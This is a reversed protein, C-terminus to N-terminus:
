AHKEEGSSRNTIPTTCPAQTPVSTQRCAACLGWYTVEAEDVLYGADDSPRSAPRTAPPASSTSSRGCARCVLHHHNDGTDVEFRAPSGAPEIRRLLGAHPSPTCWTTSRRPRCRDSGHGPARPSRRSTPTPTRASRPSSPSGPGPSECGPPECTARPAGHTAGSSKFPDLEDQGLSKCLALSARRLPLPHALRERRRRTAASGVAAPPRASTTPAPWRGTCSPSRRRM